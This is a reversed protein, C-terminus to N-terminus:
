CNASGGQIESFVQRFCLLLITSFIGVALMGFYFLFVLFAAFTIEKPQILKERCLISKIIASIRKELPLLLLVPGIESSRRLHRRQQQTMEYKGDGKEFPM